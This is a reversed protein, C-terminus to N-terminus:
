ITGMSIILQLPDADTWDLVSAFGPSVKSFRSTSAASSAIYGNRSRKRMGRGPFCDSGPLVSETRNRRGSLRWKMKDTRSSRSQQAPSGPAMRRKQLRPPANRARTTPQPPHRPRLAVWRDLSRNRPWCRSNHFRNPTYGSAKQDEFRTPTRRRQCRRGEAQPRSREESRYQSQLRQYEDDTLVHDRAEPFGNAGHRETNTPGPRAAGAPSPHHHIPGLLLGERPNM